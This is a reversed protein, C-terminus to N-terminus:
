AILERAAEVTTQIANPATEIETTQWFAPGTVVSHSTELGAERWRQIMMNSSPSLTPPKRSTIELLHVRASYGDPLVFKADSLPNALKPHMTYGAVTVPNGALLKERLSTVVGGAKRADLMEAAARLRLFQTMHKQGNGVPQWLLLPLNEKSEAMWDSILLAGSRLSWLILPGDARRRLWEAWFGLDEIWGQWTADAFHGESDGCGHLDVRLVFWGDRALAAATLASMRRSKNMEEAFAPVHLISGRPKGSTPHNAIAFRRGRATDAFFPEPGKIALETM